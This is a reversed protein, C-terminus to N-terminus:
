FDHPLYRYLFWVNACLLRLYWRITRRPAVTVNSSEYINGIWSEPSKKNLTNPDNRSREYLGWVVFRMRIGLLKCVDIFSLPNQLSSPSLSCSRWFAFPKLLKVVFKERTARKKTCKKAEQVVVVHFKKVPRQKSSTFIFVQHYNKKKWGWNLSPHPGWPNLELSIRRNM